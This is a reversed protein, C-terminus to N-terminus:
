WTRLLPLWTNKFIERQGCRRWLALATIGRRRSLDVAADVAQDV